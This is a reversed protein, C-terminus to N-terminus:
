KGLVAKLADITGWGFDKHRNPYLEAAQKLREVVQDRSMTPNTSWVLAAIGAATATAVSSGGVRSPQDGQQALTLATGGDTARQMVITFDVESGDHCITCSKYSGEVIGTVAVTESMRAPFVVGTWTTFFTSTGAACFMLKGKGYAYRVADAVSSSWLPTGISMSIIKVDSRNAALKLAEIVGNQENSMEIVVDGTGRIGVLNSNYAVGVSTGDTGCPAVAAGAMQTGHGCKDNPGDIKAWPWISSKFTGYRYVSRNSSEGQNFNIGLKNQDPSLGTDIVSVTINKGTSYKWAQPINMYFLNWSIKTGANYLQFDLLEALISEPSNGCGLKSNTRAEPTSAAEEFPYGLPEAYRATNLTRLLEIVETSICKIVFLPLTDDEMVLIDSATLLKGSTRKLSALIESLTQEKANRWEADHINISALQHDIITARAPKYGVVLLSDGERLASSVTEASVFNWRFDNRQKLSNTIIHNLQEKTQYRHQPPQSIREDDHTCANLIFLLLIININKKM